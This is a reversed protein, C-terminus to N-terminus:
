EQSFQRGDWRFFIVRYGQEEAMESNAEVIRNYHNNANWAMDWYEMGSESLEPGLLCVFTNPPIKIGNASAWVSFLKQYTDQIAGIVANM